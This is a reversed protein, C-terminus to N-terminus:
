VVLGTDDPKDKDSIIKGMKNSALRIEELKAKIKKVYDAHKLTLSVDVVFHLNRPATFKGDIYGARLYQPVVPVASDADSQYMSIMTVPNYESWNKHTDDFIEVSGVRPAIDTVIQFNLWNKVDETDIYRIERSALIALAAIAVHIDADVDRRSKAPGNHRYIMNAPRGTRETIGELSKLTDLTNNITKDSEESGVVIALVTEGRTLLESIILPGFVSGSGGSASFVVVNFNTPKHELLVKKVNDKIIDVNRKRVSGSGDTGDIIYHMNDPISKTINSRSTDLFVPLIQAAHAETDCGVYQSILNIGCGGCAYIRMQGKAM